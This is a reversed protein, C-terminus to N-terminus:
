SFYRIDNIKCFAAQSLASKQWAEYLSRWQSENCVNGGNKQTTM